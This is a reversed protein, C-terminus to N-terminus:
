KESLTTLRTELSWLKSFGEGAKQDFLSERSYTIIEKAYAAKEARRGTIRMTGKYLKIRVEGTVNKQSEDIFADLAKRLPDAWLGSYIMEAWTKDIQQKFSIHRRGLIMKELDMHTKILILAAPAEYVERSKLGIVRDEIHDIVGYGHQGGIKNLKGIIELMTSNEGNLSTPIGGTFGIVLEEPTNPTEELPKVLKFAENPPETWPDELEAAEISRGWLNEDISFRSKRPNIPLGNKLAYEIEDERNMNWERVPALIKLDPATAAFTADFRLQDNGKGTCGHAVADCGERLAIKAVEEAILPRSLASSLPYEGEYLANAKIARAVYEEAFKQRADIHYHKVAGSKYAKEEIEKFDEEQGVDVTVTYVEAGYKEQLWRIAVTTDLGGSYALAVKM